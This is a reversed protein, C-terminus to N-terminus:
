LERAFATLQHAHVVGAEGNELYQETYISPRGSFYVVFRKAFLVPVDLTRSRLALLQLCKVGIDLFIQEPRKRLYRLKLKVVYEILTILGRVAVVGRARGVAYMVLHRGADVDAVRRCIQVLIRVIIPQLAYQRRKTIIIVSNAVHLPHVKDDRRQHVM